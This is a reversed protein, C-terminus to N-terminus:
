SNDFNKFRFKYIGKGDISIYIDGNIDEYMENKENTVFHRLPYEEGLYIKEISNIKTMKNNLLYIIISKGNRLNNGYLSLAILCPKKYYKMLKSPCNNLSSLGVSPVFAFLPEEFNNNEHSKLYFSNSPDSKYKVGYSVKPWGYNKDKKIENLEDGGRPGHETSFIRDNLITLGQPNRHGFSFIKPNIEAIEDSIIKDLDDKNIEIIKGFFSEPDQALNAIDMGEWGPAGISLLINNYYNIHSSGVGNFNFIGQLCKSKFIEKNNSTNVISVYYCNNKLMTVYVFKINKHFFVTKVGGNYDDTYNEIIFEKGSENKEYYKKDQFYISLKKSDFNDKLGSYVIFSTKFSNKFDFVEEFEIFFSNAEIIKSKTIPYSDIKDKDKDKKFYSKLNDVMEPNEYIVVITILISIIWLTFIRTKEM